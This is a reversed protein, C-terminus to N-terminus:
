GSVANEFHSVAPNEFNQDFLVSVVDIQWEMNEPVRKELLYAEAARILFQQKKYDVHDEPFFTGVSRGAKVEVFILFGGKQAVIDIEKRGQTFWRPIYNRVLIRYGKRKLFDAAVDEGLKGIEKTSLKQEVM